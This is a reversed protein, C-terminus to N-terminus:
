SKEIETQMLVRNSGRNGDSMWTATDDAFLSSIINADLDVDIDTIFILFLLPAISSGQHLGKDLRFTDSRDGNVEVRTKRTGKRGHKQLKLELMKYILGDYRITRRKTTLTLTTLTAIIRNNPSSKHIQDITHQVLKLIQDTTCRNPRFGAQSDNLLNRDELTYVLRDAVMKEMVKGMCAMLSIPRYSVTDKPDKGDKLLPKIIVMRWKTPIGEGDWCRNYLHLLVNKAQTGLNKLFEYPIENEAASKNNKAEDIVRKLDELTFAQESEEQVHPQRKM